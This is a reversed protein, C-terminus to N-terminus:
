GDLELSRVIFEHHRNPQKGPDQWASRTQRKWDRWSLKM